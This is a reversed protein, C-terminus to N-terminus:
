SKIMKFGNKRYIEDFSFITDLHYHEMVAMNTCDVFSVNKSTQQKFIKLAMNEITEDLWIFSFPNLPSKMVEIFSIAGSHSVKKSIVTISESFVYNSTYLKTKQLKLISLIQQAKASNSDDNKSLAVFADSDVLASTNM